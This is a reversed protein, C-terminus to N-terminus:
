KFELSDLNLVKVKDDLTIIYVEKESASLAMGLVKKENGKGAPLIAEKGKWVM